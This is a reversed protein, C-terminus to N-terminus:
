MRSVLRGRGWPRFLPHPSGLTLNLPAVVRGAGEGSPSFVQAPGVNVGWSGSGEEGGRQRGSLRGSSADPHSVSANGLTHAHDLFRM